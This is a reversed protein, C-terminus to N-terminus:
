SVAKVWDTLPKAQDASQDWTFFRVTKVLEHSDASVQLPGSLGNTDIDGLKELANRFSEGTPCQAGCAQLTKELLSGAVWGQTFYPNTMNNAEGAKTAAAKMADVAANGTETPSAYTRFAAYKDGLQKLTADSSGAWQNVVLVDVGQARLGRVAVLSGADNHSMLVYDPNSAKIESAQATVDTPAVPMYQVTAETWGRSAIDQTALKVMDRNSPTDVSFVAIRPKAIGDEQARTALYNLIASELREARLEYSFYYSQVPDFLSAPGGLGVIPMKNQTAVPLTALSLNSLIFGFTALRKESAFQQVNARGKAVDSGDDLVKLDIKKGNVGGRSNLDAVYAQFGAAAPKGNFSIAGSLDMSMGIPYDGEASSESAGGCGALILTAALGAALAAAAPTNKHIM